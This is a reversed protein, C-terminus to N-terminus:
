PDRRALALAETRNSVTGDLQAEYVKRLRRGMEPGPAVGIDALDQGRVLPEPPSRLVGLVAARTLAPAVDHGKAHRRALGLLVESRDSLWRLDRDTDIPADAADHARLLERRVAYGELKHLGLRELTPTPDPTAALWVLLGAALRWGRGADRHPWTALRDLAHDLAPDDVREPFLRADVRARRALDLGRSPAHGVALLKIWEGLIREPPLEDLPAQACLKVLENDPSFELRAAFQVARLARLPDELFTDADVARLRKRAIDELGGYPDIYEASLPDYLIANVTLDRRRAAEEISLTPDGVVAIGRHGPGVNSDTRPISVDLEKGPGVTVKLVGFSRGVEDVRGFRRLIAVLAEVPLGYVEVDLDAHARGMRADRVGGGVLFARGGAADVARALDPVHPPLQM